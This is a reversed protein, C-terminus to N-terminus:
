WEITEDGAVVKKIFQADRLNLRDDKNADAALKAFASLEPDLDGAIQSKIAKADRLNVKGNLDADGRFALALNEVASTTSLKLTYNHKTGSNSAPVIRYNGSSLKSAVLVAQNKVSSVAFNAYGNSDGEFWVGAKGLAYNAAWIVHGAGQASNVASSWSADSGPYEALVFSTKDFVNTGLRPKSGLFRISLPGCHAFALEGIEMVEASLDVLISDGTGVIGYFLYDGLGAVGNVKIGTIEDQFTYFGPYERPFDWTAGSGEVTLTGGSGLYWTADDGVQDDCVWTITGGYDQLKDESWSYVPPYYVTTTADYFARDAINPAHGKFHVEDLFSGTPFCCKGITTLDKGLEIKSLNCMHYLLFSGLETIGDSVTARTTWPRVAVFGPLKKTFDWTAGSGEIRLMGSGDLSWTVKDGLQNDCVWTITGGYDQLVSSSWGPVPYYTATATLDLFPDAGFSPPRGKFCIEKLKPSYRFCLDGISAVNMGIEIKELEPLGYFLYNGLGTIGSGVVISKIQDKKGYFGPYDSPFDWTDGEGSLTLTGSSNLSWYVKDGVQYDSYPVWTITGGYDQMVEATWNAKWDPYYATATVNRFVNTGFSPANGTFTIETLAYCNDFANAGIETVDEPITIAPLSFLNALASSRITTLTSPLEVSNVNRLLRLMQSAISTIGEEVVVKNWVATCELTHWYYTSHQFITIAYLEGTGSFTLTAEATNYAWTVKSGARNELLWLIDGGYDQLKDESWGVNEDIIDPYHANGSFGEFATSSIRPATFFFYIGVLSSCGSFCHDGISDVKFFYVREVRNLGKFLCNGLDLSNSGGGVQIFTIESRYSYFGPRENTFDWTAGKGTILLDGDDYVIWKVDDGCKGEAKVNQPEADPGPAVAAPEEDPEILAIEDAPAETDVIEIDEAAAAPLLSFALTLCLILALFRKM